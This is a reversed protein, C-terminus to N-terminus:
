IDLYRLFENLRHLNEDPVSEEQFHASIIYEYREFSAIVSSLNTKNLKLTLKLQTHDEPDTQVYSSLIKAGNNEIIHAVQTMSYDREKIALVIIGGPNQLASLQTFANVLDPLSILGVYADDEALVPVISLQNEHALKIADFIHKNQRIFVDQHELLLQGINVSFDEAEFVTNESVMGLYEGNDVVPLHSVKHEEMWQLAKQPSDEPRLFPIMQNIQEKAIM